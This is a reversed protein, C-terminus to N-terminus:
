DDIAMAGKWTCYRIRKFRHYWSSKGDYRKRKRRGGYGNELRGDCRCFLLFLLSLLSANPESQKEEPTREDQIYMEDNDSNVQFDYSFEYRRGASSLLMQRYTELAATMNRSAQQSYEESPNEYTKVQPM